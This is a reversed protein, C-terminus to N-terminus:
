FNTGISIRHLNGIKGLSSLAYDVNYDSVAIGIGGSFGALGASTGTKLDKRQENNYGFRLLLVRSLTFEGGVTFARFRDIFTGPTENLKHFNVNLLLPLGKPVISAGVTVDLPLTERIGAYTSLQAGLNRISAGISLRNEPITYLIGADAALGTSSFGAISSHIYKVSGGYYLHEEFTNGYGLVVALDAASFSGLTNGVDDTENFSGYNTYLIGAGFHGIGPVDQSYVAYGANIDLLHKFFGVAARPTDLTGLAAPNYFLTSPDNTMTVFSGAMGAARAGVDSRLFNYVTTTQGLGASAAIACLLLVGGLLLGRMRTGGPNM